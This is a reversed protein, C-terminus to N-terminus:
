LLGLTNLVYVCMCLYANLAELQMGTFQKNRGTVRELGDVKQGTKKFGKEVNEKNKEM